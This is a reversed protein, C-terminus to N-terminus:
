AIDERALTALAETLRTIGTEVGTEGPGVAFPAAYRVTVTSFPKPVLFRDWSGFRWGRDATAHLPLLLAGTRQAAVVAGPSLVRRPGLPGDPAIAVPRGAQLVETLERFARRGEQGTAGRVTRYGIAEGFSALYDGDLSASVLMTIDRRTRHEWVQPLLTEHWIVYVFGKGSSRAAAEHEAGTVRVRWTAALASVLPLGIWRAAGVPLKM